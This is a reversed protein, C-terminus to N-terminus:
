QNGGQNVDPCMLSGDPNLRPHIGGYSTYMFYHCGTEDDIFLDIKSGEYPKATYRVEGTEVDNSSQPSNDAESSPAACGILGITCIFGIAFTKGMMKINSMTFWRNSDKKM